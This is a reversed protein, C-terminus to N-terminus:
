SVNENNEESSMEEEKEELEYKRNCKRKEPKKKVSYLWPCLPDNCAKLQM